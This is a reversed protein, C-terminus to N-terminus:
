FVEGMLPGFNANTGRTDVHVFSQYVGIGGKFVGADRMAKLQRAWHVPSKGDSSSFDVAMFKMHLSNSASGSICANYAPSRYVSLTQIPAGLANRLADLVHATPGLNAWLDRPPYTNRGECMGSANQNGLILFEEAKFYSLGLSDVYATFASMDFGTGAEPSGAPLAPTGAGPDDNRETPLPHFAEMILLLGGQEPVIQRLRWGEGALRNLESQLLGREGLDIREVKYTPLCAGIRVEDSALGEDVEIETAVVQMAGQAVGRGSFTCSNGRFVLVYTPAPQVDPAYGHYHVDQKAGWVAVHNAVVHNGWQALAKASSLHPNLFHTAGKVTCSGAGARRVLHREVIGQVTPSAAKLKGWTGSGGPGGIASFQYPADVVADVTAPFAPHAVRNIITDVVAAVGGELVAEGYRGFHGVESMATRSLADLERQTLDIVAM